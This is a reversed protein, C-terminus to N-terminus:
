ICGIQQQKHNTRSKIWKQLYVSYYAVMDNTALVRTYSGLPKPVQLCLHAMKIGWFYLVQKYLCYRAPKRLNKISLQSLYQLLPYIIYVVLLMARLSFSPTEPEFEFMAWEVCSLCQCVMWNELIKWLNTWWNVDILMLYCWRYLIM